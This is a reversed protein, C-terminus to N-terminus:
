LNQIHASSLVAMGESGDEYGAYRAQPNLNDASSLYRATSDVDASYSPYNSDWPSVENVNHGDVIMSSLYSDISSAFVGQTAIAQTNISLSSEKQNVEDIKESHQLDIFVDRFPSNNKVSRWQMTSTNMQHRSLSPILLPRACTNIILTRRQSLRALSSHTKAREDTSVGFLYYPSILGASSLVPPRIDQGPPLVPRCPGAFEHASPDVSPSHAGHGLLAIHAVMGSCSLKGSITESGTRKSRKM